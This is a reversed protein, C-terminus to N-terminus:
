TSGARFQKLGTRLCYCIQPSPTLPGNLEWLGNMLCSDPNIRRGFCVWWYEFAPLGAEIEHEHENGIENEVTLM